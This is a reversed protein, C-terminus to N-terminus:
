GEGFVGQRRLLLKKLSIEAVQLAPLFVSVGSERTPEHVLCCVGKLWRGGLGETGLEMVAPTRPESSHTAVAQEEGAQRGWPPAPSM